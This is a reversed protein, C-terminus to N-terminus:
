STIGFKSNLLVKKVETVTSGTSIQGRKRATEIRQKEKEKCEREWQVFPSDPAERTNALASEPHAADEHMILDAVFRVGTRLPVRIIDIGELDENRNLPLAENELMEFSIPASLKDEKGTRVLLISQHQAINEDHRHGYADKKMAEEVFKYEDFVTVLAEFLPHLRFYREDIQRGMRPGRLMERAQEYIKEHGYLIEAVTNASKAKVSIPAAFFDDLQVFPQRGMKEIWYKSICGLIVLRKGGGPITEASEMWYFPVAKNCMM